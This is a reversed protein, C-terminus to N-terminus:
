QMVLVTFLVRVVKADGYAERILASMEQKALEKTAPERLQEYSLKSIYTLIVDKAIAAEAEFDKAVIGEELVLAVGVRAYRTEPNALNIVVEPLELTEGEVPAVEVVAAAPDAPAPAPALVFKYAGGGLVLAGVVMMMMKKKGGGAAEGEDSKKKKTM